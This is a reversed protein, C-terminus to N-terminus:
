KICTKLTKRSLSESSNAILAFAKASGKSQMTSELQTIVPRIHIFPPVIKWLNKTERWGTKHWRYCTNKLYKRKLNKQLAWKKRQMQSSMRWFQMSQTLITLIRTFNIELPAIGSTRLEVSLEKRLTNDWTKISVKWILMMKSNSNDLNLCWIPKTLRAQQQEKM